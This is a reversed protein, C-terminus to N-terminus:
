LPPLTLLLLLLSEFPAEAAFFCRLLQLQQILEICIHVLLVASSNPLEILVQMHAAKRLYWKYLCYPMRLLALSAAFSCVLHICSV